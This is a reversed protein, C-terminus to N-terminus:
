IKMMACVEEFESIFMAKM